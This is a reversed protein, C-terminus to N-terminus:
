IYLRVDVEGNLFEIKVDVKYVQLDMHDIIILIFHILCIVGNTLIDYAVADKQSSEQTM